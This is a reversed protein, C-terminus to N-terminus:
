VDIPRQKALDFEHMLEGDARQVSRLFRAIGILMARALPDDAGKLLEAAAIAALASSGVEGVGWAESCWLSQSGCRRLVNQEIWKLALLAGDRARPWHEIRAIQALFYATGAHRPLSYPEPEERNRAGDYVYTFRGDPYQHRLLFEAGAVAAR